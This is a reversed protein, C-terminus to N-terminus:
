GPPIPLRERIEAEVTVEGAQEFRVTLEVTEGAELPEELEELSLHYDGPRLLLEALAPIEVGEVENRRGDVLRVRGAVDDSLSAGVLRDDAFSMIQMYGEALPGGLPSMQVWPEAVSVRAEGGDPATADDDGCAGVLLAAAATVAFLRRPGLM